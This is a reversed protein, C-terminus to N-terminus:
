AVVGGGPGFCKARVGAMCEVCFGEGSCVRRSFAAQSSM